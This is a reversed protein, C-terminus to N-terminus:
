VNAGDCCDASNSALDGCHPCDWWWLPDATTLLPLPLPSPCWDDDIWTASEELSDTAPGVPAPAAVLAAGSPGSGHSSPLPASSATAATIVLRVEQAQAAPMLARLVSEVSHVRHDPVQTATDAPPTGTATASAPVELLEALPESSDSAQPAVPADSGTARMSADECVSQDDGRRSERHLPAAPAASASAAPARDANAAADVSAVSASPTPEAPAHQAAADDDAPHSAPPPAAAEDVVATTGTAPAAPVQEHCQPTSLHQPLQCEALSGLVATATAGASVTACPTETVLPATHELRLSRTGTEHLAHQVDDRSLAESTSLLAVRTTEIRGLRGATPATTPAVGGRRRRGASVGVGDESGAICFLATWCLELCTDSKASAVLRVPTSQPLSTVDVYVTLRAPFGGRQLKELDVMWTVEEAAAADTAVGTDHCLVLTLHQQLSALPTAERTEELQRVSRLDESLAIKVAMYRRLECPRVVAPTDGVFSTCSAAQRRACVRAGTAAGAAGDAALTKTLAPKVTDLVQNFTYEFVCCRPGLLDSVVSRCCCLLLAPLGVVSSV